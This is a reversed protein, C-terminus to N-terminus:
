AILTTQEVDTWLSLEEGEDQLITHIFCNATANRALFRAIVGAFLLRSSGTFAQPDLELTVKIGNHWGRWADRGRHESVRQCCM